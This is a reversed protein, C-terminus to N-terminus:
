IKSVVKKGQSASGTKTSSQNGPVPQETQNSGTRGTTQAAFGCPAEQILTEILAMRSQGAAHSTPADAVNGEKLKKSPRSPTADDGSTEMKKKNSTTVSSSNDLYQAPQELHDKEVYISHSIKDGDDDIATGSSELQIGVAANNSNNLVHGLQEESYTAGLVEQFLFM